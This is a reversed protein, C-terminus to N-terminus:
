SPCMKNLSQSRKLVVKGSADTIYIKCSGSQRKSVKKGRVEKEEYLAATIRFPIKRKFKQLKAREKATLSKMGFSGSWRWSKKKKVDTYSTKLAAVQDDSLTGAPVPKKFKSTTSQASSYVAVTALIVLVGLSGLIIRKM